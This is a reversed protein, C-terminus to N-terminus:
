VRVGFATALGSRFTEFGNPVIDAGAEATARTKGLGIGSTSGAVVTSKGALQM